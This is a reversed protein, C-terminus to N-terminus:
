NQTFASIAPFRLDGHRNGIKREWDFKITLYEVEDFVSLRERTFQISPDFIWRLPVVFDRELNYVAFIVRREDFKLPPPPFM